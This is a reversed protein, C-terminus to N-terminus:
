LLASDGRVAERKSRGHEAAPEPRLDMPQANVVAHAKLMGSVSECLGLPKSHCFILTNIRFVLGLSRLGIKEIEAAQDSDEVQAVNM